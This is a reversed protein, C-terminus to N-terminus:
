TDNRGESEVKYWTERTGYRSHDEWYEVSIIDIDHHNDLGWSWSMFPEKKYKYNVLLKILKDILKM